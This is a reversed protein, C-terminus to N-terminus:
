LNYFTDLYKRAIKEKDYEDFMIVRKDKNQIEKIKDIWENEDFPDEVYYCKNQTVEPISARKTTLVKAGLMMAEIPPMGFGEFISSFLFTNCKRILENREENSVFGTLIINKTLNNDEIKKILEEKQSGSVGSIVLKKPIDVNKDKLINIMRILTELNKHKHLSEVTYYYENEKLNYKELINTNENNTINLEIPIHIYDINDKNLINEKLDQKTFNTTAIVKDALKIDQKWSFRFWINEFKSFHDPYHFALIDQIVVVKKIKKCPLVPMEYVPFFCFNLKNKKLIKYQVTNQWLLHGIVNNAKTNCKIQKFRSDELYKDFENENDKATLLYYQNNDELNKFGDLLNRIYSEVGGSKKPKLWTLDIAIKMNKEM